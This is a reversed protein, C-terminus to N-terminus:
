CIYGILLRVAEKLIDIEPHIEENKKAITMDGQEMFVIRNAIGKFEKKIIARYQYYFYSRLQDFTHPGKVLIIVDKNRNLLQRASRSISSIRDQFIESRFTSQHAFIHVVVVIKSSNSINNLDASISHTTQDKSEWRGSYFPQAHPIWQATFNLNSNRCVSQKHWSKWKWTETIQTCNLYNRMYEYWQRSTSDGYIVIQQGSLCKSYSDTDPLNCFTPQWRGEYFFGSPSHQLWTVRKPVYSCNPLEERNQM